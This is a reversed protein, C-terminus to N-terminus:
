RYSLDETLMKPLTIIPLELFRNSWDYAMFNQGIESRFVYNFTRYIKIKGGEYIETDSGNYFAGKQSSGNILLKPGM